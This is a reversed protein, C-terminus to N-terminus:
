LGMIPAQGWARLSANQLFTGPERSGTFVLDLPCSPERGAAVKQEALLKDYECLKRDRANM